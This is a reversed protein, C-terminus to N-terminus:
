ADEEDRHVKTRHPFPFVVGKTVLNSGVVIGVLVLAGGALMYALTAIM